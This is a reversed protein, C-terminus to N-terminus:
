QSFTLSCSATNINSSTSLSLIFLTSPSVYTSLFFHRCVFLIARYFVDGYMTRSQDFFLVLSFLACPFSSFSFSLKGVCVVCRDLCFLTRILTLFLGANAHTLLSFWRCTPSLFFFSHRVFSPLFLLGILCNKKERAQARGRERIRRKKQKSVM